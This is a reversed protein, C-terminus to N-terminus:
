TFLNLKNNTEGTDTQLGAAEDNEDVVEKEEVNGDDDIRKEEADAGETQQEDNDEETLSQAMFCDNCVRAKKSSSVFEDVIPM